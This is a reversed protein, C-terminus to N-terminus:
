RDRSCADSTRTGTTRSACRFLLCCVGPYRRLGFILFSILLTTGQREGHGPLGLLLRAAQRHHLGAAPEQLLGDQGQVGQLGFFLAHGQTLPDSCFFLTEMCGKPIRGDRRTSTPGQAPPDQHRRRLGGDPGVQVGETSGCDGPAFFFETLHM